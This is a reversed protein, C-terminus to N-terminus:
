IDEGSGAPPQPPQSPTVPAGCYPCAVWGPQLPRGCNSCTRIVSPMSQAPASGRRVLAIVGWILLGILAAWVLLRLLAFFMIFGFSGGFMMPMRFAYPQVGFRMMMGYGRGFFLPLAVAFVVIFVGIFILLYRVWNQM